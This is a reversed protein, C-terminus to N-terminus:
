SLEKEIPIGRYSVGAEDCMTKAVKISELWRQVREDNSDGEFGVIHKIGANIAAKCCNSCIPPLAFSPWVYLTGDRSRHGANLIANIEAHVVFEYKTPRDNYREKSDDVGVSFGNYGMGVVHNYPDVIVAGVKTSPDKSWSAVTRALQLYRIDWKEQRSNNM